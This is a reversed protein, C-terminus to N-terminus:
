PVYYTMYQFNFKCKQHTKDSFIKLYCMYLLSPIILPLFYINLYIEWNIRAIKRILTSIMFRNYVSIFDNNEASIILGLNKIIIM